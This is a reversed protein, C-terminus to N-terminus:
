SWPSYLSVSDRVAGGEFFFVLFFGWFCFFFGFLYVFLFNNGVEIKRSKLNTFYKRCTSNV